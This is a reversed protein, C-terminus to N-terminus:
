YHPPTGHHADLQAEKRAAENSAAQAQANVEALEAEKSRREATLQAAQQRKRVAKSEYQVSHLEAGDSALAATSPREVTDAPVCGGCGMCLQNKSLQIM